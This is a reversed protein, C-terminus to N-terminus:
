IGLMQEPDFGLVIKKGKVLIPRKVLNPNNAMLRIAQIRPPPNDKMGMEKFLENRSNLFQTYDRDGILEDLEAETLGKSLDV